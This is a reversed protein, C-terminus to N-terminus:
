FVNKYSQLLKSLAIITSIIKQKTFQKFFKQQAILICTMLLRQCYVWLYKVTGRASNLTLGPTSTYLWSSRPAETCPLSRFYSNRYLVLSKVNRWGWWQAPKISNLLFLSPRPQLSLSFLVPSLPSAGATGWTGGPADAPETIAENTQGDSTGSWSASLLCCLLQATGPQAATGHWIQGQVCTALDGPPLPSSTVPPYQLLFITILQNPCDSGAPVRFDKASM